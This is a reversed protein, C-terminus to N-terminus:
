RPSRRSTACGMNLGQGAIPHIVHAADGISRSGSPSSRARSRCASRIPAARDRSRSARGARPRLPTGARRPIRRRAARRHARGGREGRDVRHSSRNGTLPLIAFPGRPCSISRRAATIIASTRSRPSSRRNGTPGASRRSAPATRAPALARRRRRGAARAAIPRATPSGRSSRIRSRRSRVGHRASPRLTVGETAAGQRHAGRRSRPERGHPRVARGARDRRRVDPVGAAGRRDARSDTIAM